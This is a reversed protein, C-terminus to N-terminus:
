QKIMFLLHRIVEIFVLREGLAAFLPESYPLLNHTTLHLIPKEKRIRAAVLEDGKQFLRKIYKITQTDKSVSSLDRPRFNVRAMMTNYLQLDTLMRVMAIAADVTMKQLYYLACNHELEFAYTLLEVRDIAALIPSFM